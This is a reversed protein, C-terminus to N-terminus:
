TNDNLSKLVSILENWDHIHLHECNPQLNGPERYSCKLKSEYWVPFLGCDSAGKVDCRIDDGCFWMEGPNLRAKEIALSFLYAEPKRFVYESSALVFEFENKPLVDQIRKKLTEGSYSINSIVGTRIGQEKLFLLLESIGDMPYITETAKWREYELEEPTLDFKLGYLEYILKFVHICQVELGRERMDKIQGNFLADGLKNMREATVAHPNSTALELVKEAGALFNQAPEYVLTHGYDFVIM